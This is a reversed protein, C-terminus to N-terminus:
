STRFLHTLIISPPRAPPFHPFPASVLLGNNSCTYQQSTTAGTWGVKWKGAIKSLKIGSARAQLEGTPAATAGIAATALVFFNTLQMKFQQSQPSHQHQNSLHQQRHTDQHQQAKLNWSARRIYEQCQTRKPTSAEVRVGDGGEVM